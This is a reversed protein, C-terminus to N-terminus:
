NDRTLIQAKAYFGQFRGVGLVDQKQALWKGLKPAASGDRSIPAAAFWDGSNKHFGVQLKEEVDPHNRLSGGHSAKWRLIEALKEKVDEGEPKARVMFAESVIAIEDAGSMVLAIALNEVADKGADKANMMEQVFFLNRRGSRFGIVYSSITVDEGAEALQCFMSHAVAVEEVFHTPWDGEPLLDLPLASV